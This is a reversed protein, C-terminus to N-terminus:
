RPECAEPGNNKWMPAEGPQDGSNAYYDAKWQSKNYNVYSGSEYSKINNWATAIHSILKWADNIDPAPEGPNIYNKNEWILGKYSVKHTKEGPYATGSSWAPYDGASPDTCDGPEPNADAEVLLKAIANATEGISDRVVCSIDFSTSTKVDKTVYTIHSMNHGIDPSTLPNPLNWSYTFPGEGGKVMANFKADTGSKVNQPNPMIELTPNSPASSDKVSLIAQAESTKGNKDTVMCTIEFTRNGIADNTLYTIHDKDLRNDESRLGSPLNWLYTFPADGSVSSDFSANEGKEVENSSPNISIDPGPETAGDFDLDFTQYFAHGTDSVIWAVIMVHHGTKQPLSVNTETPVTGYPLPTPYHHKHFPAPELQAISIREAPSWGDKTIWYNFGRTSHPASYEWKMKFNEGSSVKIRPWTKGKKAQLEADTSNVIDWDSGHENTWGGSCIFHDPPIPRFPDGDQTDEPYKDLGSIEKTPFFKGGEFQLINWEGLWGQGYSYTGRTNLAYGHRTEPM